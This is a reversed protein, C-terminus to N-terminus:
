DQDAMMESKIKQMVKAELQRAAERTMGYKDGIEQLTLPEDALLRNELVFIERESLTPRVRAIHKQLLALEERHGIVEDAGLDDKDSTVDLLTSKDESDRPKDLSVDRQLVRQSM